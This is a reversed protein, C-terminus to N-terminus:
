GEKRYFGFAAPRFKALESKAHTSAEQARKLEERLTDNESKSRILEVVVDDLGALRDDLLMSLDKLIEEKASIMSEVMMSLDTRSLNGSSTAVSAYSKAPTTKTFTQLGGNSGKETSERIREIDQIGFFMKGTREDEHPQIGLSQCLSLVTPEDLHFAECIYTITYPFTETSMACM